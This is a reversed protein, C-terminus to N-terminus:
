LLYSFTIMPFVVVNESLSSFHTALQFFKQAACTLLFPIQPPRIAGNNILNPNSPDKCNFKSLNLISCVTHLM